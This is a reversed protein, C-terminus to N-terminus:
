YRDFVIESQIGPSYLVYWKANCISVHGAFYNLYGHVFRQFIVINLLKNLFTADPIYNKETQKKQSRQQVLSTNLTIKYKEWRSLNLKLQCCRSRGRLIVGEWIRTSQFSVGQIFSHIIWLFINCFHKGVIYSM